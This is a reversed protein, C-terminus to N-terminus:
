GEHSDAEERHPPSAILAELEDACQHIGSRQGDWHDDGSVLKGGTKRRWKAVLQKLAEVAPLAPAVRRLDNVEKVLREIEAFADGSARRVSDEVTWPALKETM